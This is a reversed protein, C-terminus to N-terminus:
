SFSCPPLILSLHHRCGVHKCELPQTREWWGVFLAERHQLKMWGGFAAHMRLHFVQRMHMEGTGVMPVRDDTTAHDRGSQACEHKSVNWSQGMTTVSRGSVAEVPCLAQLHQLHSEASMSLGLVDISLENVRDDLKVDVSHNEM